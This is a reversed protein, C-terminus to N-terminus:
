YFKQKTFWREIWSFSIKITHYNEEILGNNETGKVSHQYALHLRNGLNNLPLSFGASIGKEEIRTGNVSLYGDSYFLGAEWSMSNILKHKNKPHSYSFGAGFTQSDHFTGNLTQSGNLTSWESFSYDASFQWGSQWHKALGATFMNPLWVDEASQDENYYTTSEDQLITQNSTAYINTEPQWTAGAYINGNNTKGKYQLGYKLYLNNFYWKKSSSITIGSLDSYDATEMIDSSGWLFTADVGASFNKTLKIGNSLTVRSLGGSGEYVMPYDSTSGIIDNNANIEYGVSSFPYLGLSMGWWPTVRFGMSLIDFNSDFNTQEKGGMSFKNITGQGQLNFYFSLSDLHSLSAPNLTNLYGDSPMAVGSNGMAANKAHAPTELIGFGFVSYPSSTNNQADLNGTSTILILAILLIKLNNKTMTTIFFM